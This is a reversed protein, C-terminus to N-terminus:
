ISNKRQSDVKSRVAIAKERLNQGLRSGIKTEGKAGGPEGLGGSRTQASKKNVEGRRERSRGSRRPDKPEEGEREGGGGDKEQEEADEQININPNTARVRVEEVLKKKQEDMERKQKINAVIRNWNGYLSIDFDNEQM